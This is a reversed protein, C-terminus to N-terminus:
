TVGDGYPNTVTTDTFGGVIKDSVKASEGPVTMDLVDTLDVLLRDKIFQETMAAERGTALHVVDPFNGAQMQPDLVDELNTEITLEVTAGTEDEFAKAVDRWMDAGYATEIAAVKLTVGTLDAPNNGEESPEESPEEPTQSEETATSPNEPADSTKDGSNTCAALLSMMMAVALLVSLIKKMKM